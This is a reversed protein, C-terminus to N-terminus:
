DIDLDGVAGLGTLAVTAAIVKMFDDFGGSSPSIPGAIEELEGLDVYLGRCESCRDLRVGRVDIQELYGIDCAPCELDTPVPRSQPELKPASTQSQGANRRAFEALESANFWIGGCGSCSRVPYGDVETALFDNSCKPCKM